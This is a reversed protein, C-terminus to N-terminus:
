RLSPLIALATTRPLSQRLASRHTTLIAAAARAM